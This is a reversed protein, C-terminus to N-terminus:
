KGYVQELKESLRKPQVPKILVQKQIKREPINRITKPADFDQYRNVGVLV